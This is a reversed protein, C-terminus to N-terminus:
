HERDRVLYNWDMGGFRIKRVGMKINDGWRRKLIELPRKREPKEGL